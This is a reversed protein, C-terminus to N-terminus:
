NRFLRKRHEEVQGQYAGLDHRAIGSDRVARTTTPMITCRKTCADALM